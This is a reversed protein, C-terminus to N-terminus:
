PTAETPVDHSIPREAASPVLHEATAPIPREAGPPLWGQAKWATLPSQIGLADFRYKVRRNFERNVAWRQAPTTRIRVRLTWANDGFGTVGMVELDSTVADQWRPEARMARVEEQLLDAIRDPEENLGVPLDVLAYSFDRTQNTVTSVSSFPIIHVAGDLARLRITRISLHEVTGTLAALTVVDGVQMTNELLLFLGTILDQVLKQSGFGIAVGLVSAGALLPVINVGLQSLVILGAILLITAMLTTRLMPLLTRLRTARAMQADRTLGALHNEISVNAAEWVAAAIGVTIASTLVASLVQDGLRGREFWYLPSLGWAWLLAVGAAAYITVTLAARLVPYYRNIRPAMDPMAQGAAHLARDLGGLLVISGLRAAMIIGTTVLAFHLLRTYGDAIEAAAVLWLAVIYFIAILHWRAALQNQLTALVGSARHRARLRSEVARRKQLVILVLMVHVVLGVLKLVVDHASRYLGFLLGVEAAAFGFVAVVALRRMWREVYAATDDTCGVLRLRPAGPAVLARTACMIVRCVVYANVVAIVVLRTNQTDGLPTGLLANGIGAFAAVPLLALLVDLLALPLRRLAKWAASFRRHRGHSDAAGDAAPIDQADAEESPAYAALARRPRQLGRALLWEGARACALVVALRWLADGIRSRAYPDGAINVAWRWVLPTDNVAAAADGFQGALQRVGESLQLLVRAGLSNAVIELAAPKAPASPMAHVMDELVATFAARKKDDQLVDLVGQAQAPTLPSAAAPASAAATPVTAQGAAPLPRALALLPALALLLLLARM